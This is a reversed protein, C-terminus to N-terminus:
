WAQYRNFHYISISLAMGSIVMDFNIDLMESPGSVYKEMARKKWHVRDNIAAMFTSM